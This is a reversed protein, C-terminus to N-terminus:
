DFQASSNAESHKCQVDSPFIGQGFFHHHIIIKGFCFWSMFPKHSTRLFLRSRNFCIQRVKLLQLPYGRIMHIVVFGVISGRDGTSSIESSSFSGTDRLHLKTTIYINLFLSSFWFLDWGWFFLLAWFYTLTTNKNEDRLHSISCKECIAKWFISFGSM